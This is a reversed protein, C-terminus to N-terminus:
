FSMTTLSDLPVLVRNIREIDPLYKTQNSIAMRVKDLDIERLALCFTLLMESDSKSAREENYVECLYEFINLGANGGLYEALHGSYLLLVHPQVDYEAIRGFVAIPVDQVIEEDSDSGLGMSEEQERRHQIMEKLGKSVTWCRAGKMGKAYQQVLVKAWSTGDKAYVQILEGVSYVGKSRAEKLDGTTMELAFKTFYSGLKDTNGHVRRLDQSALSVKYKHKWGIGQWRAFLYKSLSQEEQKSIHGDFVLLAHVHLHWAGDYKRVTTEYVRVYGKFGKYKSRVSTLLSNFMSSIVKRIDGLSENRREVTLTLMFASSHKMEDSAFLLEIDEQRKYAQVQSCHPCMRHKCRWRHLWKYYEDGGQAIQVKQDANNAYKLCDRVNSDPLIQSIAKRLIRKDISAIQWDNYGSSVFCAKEQNDRIKSNNRISDLHQNSKEYAFRPEVFGKTNWSSLSKSQIIDSHCSSSQPCPISDIDKYTNM